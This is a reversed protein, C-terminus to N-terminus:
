IKRYLVLEPNSGNCGYRSIVIIKGNTAIGYCKEDNPIEVQNGLYVDKDNLLKIKSGNELPYELNIYNGPLLNLDDIHLHNIKLNNVEEVLKNKINLYESHGHENIIKNFLVIAMLRTGKVQKADVM